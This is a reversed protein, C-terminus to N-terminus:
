YIGVKGDCPRIDIIKRRQRTNEFVWDNRRFKASIQSTGRAFREFLQWVIDILERFFILRFVCQRLLDRAGRNLLLGSIDIDASKPSRERINFVFKGGISYSQEVAHVVPRQLPMFNSQLQLCPVKIERTLICDPHLPLIRLPVPASNTIEIQIPGPRIQRDYAGM